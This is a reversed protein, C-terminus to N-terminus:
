EKQHIDGITAVRYLAVDQPVCYAGIRSGNGQGNRGDEIGQLRISTPHWSGQFANLTTMMTNKDLARCTRLMEAAGVTIRGSEM